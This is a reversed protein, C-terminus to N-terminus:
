EGYAGYTELNLSSEQAHWCREPLVVFVGNSAAPIRVDFVDPIGDSNSDSMSPDMKHQYEELNVLGDNDFDGDPMESLTEIFQIEWWDPLGDEDTDVADLDFSFLYKLQGINATAYDNAQGSLSTWPYPGSTMGEPWANTLDGDLLVQYFPEALYKLQGLNVLLYDNTSPGWSVRNSVSSSDNTLKQDFELWAKYAMYKVQGQNVPAYDQPEMNTNIVGRDVWWQPVEAFLLGALLGVPMAIGVKLLRKM